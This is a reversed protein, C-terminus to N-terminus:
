LLVMIKPDDLYKNTEAAIFFDLRFSPKDEPFIAKMCKIMNKKDQVIAYAFTRYINNTSKSLFEEVLKKADNEKGTNMLINAKKLTNAEFEPYLMIGKEADKFAKTWERKLSYANSRAALAKSKESNDKSRKYAKTYSQIAGDYDNKDRLIVHGSILYGHMNKPDIKKMREAEAYAKKFNDLYLYSLAMNKKADYKQVTFSPIKEYLELAQSYEGDLFASDGLFEMPKLKKDDSSYFQTFKEIKKRLKNLDRRIIDRSSSSHYVINEADIFTNLRETTARYPDRVTTPLNLNINDHLEAMFEDFGEIEVWRVNDIKMLKELRKSVRDKKRLCWYFGDNGFYRPSKSKLMYELNGMISEDNGGYGVVILGYDESFSRFKDRMNIELANTEEIINKINDYLFDGHLKIIKPRPSKRRVDRVASDHACVMPRLDAYLFCADNILDDFNTTFVVKFYNKAIMNAVYILPWSPRASKICDEIYIRRNSPNAVVKQFLISYEKDNQYWTQEKLWKVFPKLNESKARAKRKYKEYEKIRWETIMEYGTKIGSSYSAGAGLLLSFNPTNGERLKISEILDLQDIQKKPDLM